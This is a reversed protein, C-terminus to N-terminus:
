QFDFAVIPDDDELRGLSCTSTTWHEAFSWELALADLNRLRRTDLRELVDRLIEHELDEAELGALVEDSIQRAQLVDAPDIGHLDAAHARPDPVRVSDIDGVQRVPIQDLNEAPTALVLETGPCVFPSM